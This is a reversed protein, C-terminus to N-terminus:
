RAYGEQCALQLASFGKHNKTRVDIGSMSLLAEMARHSGRQVAMLLPTDM